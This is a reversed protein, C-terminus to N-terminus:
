SCHGLPSFIQRFYVSVEPSLVIHTLVGALILSEEELLGTESCEKLLYWVMDLSVPITQLCALEVELFFGMGMHQCKDYPPAEFVFHKLWQHTAKEFTIFFTVFTIFTQFIFCKQKQMPWVALWLWQKNKPSVM